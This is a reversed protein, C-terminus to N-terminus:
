SLSRLLDKVEAVTMDLNASIQSEYTTLQLKRLTDQIEPTPWVFSSFAVFDEVLGATAEVSATSTFRLQADATIIEGHKQLVGTVVSIDRLPSLDIFFGSEGPAGPIDEKLESPLDFALKVLSNSMGNYLDYFEGSAFGNQGLRTDIVDNVADLSGIVVLNRSLFAFRVDSDVLYTRYGNHEQTPLDVQGMVRAAELLYKAPITLSVIVGYYTGEDGLTSLDAFITAEDLYKPAVGSEEEFEALAAELTRPTSPDEVLAASYAYLDAAHEDNLIEAVKIEAIANAREPVPFVGASAGQCGTLLM